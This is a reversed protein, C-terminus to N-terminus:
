LYYLQGTRLLSRYIHGMDKKYTYLKLVARWEIRRCDRILKFSIALFVLTDYVSIAIFGATRAIEVNEIICQLSSGLHTASSIFPSLFSCLTTCWLGIFVVQLLKNDHFVALVRLLFHMSNLSLAFAGFWCTVVLVAQCNGHPIDLLLDYKSFWLLKSSHVCLRFHFRM